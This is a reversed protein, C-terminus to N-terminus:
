KSLYERLANLSNRTDEEAAVFLEHLKEKDQTTVKVTPPISPYIVFVRGEEHLKDMLDMQENYLKYDNLLSNLFEKNKRYQRRYLAKIAKSPSKKRYGKARTSIVVIHKAGEELPRLFPIAEFIGGDVYGKGDITIPKSFPPLSASSALGQYFNKDNKSFYAACNDTVCASVAYFDDESAFFEEEKFPLKEKPLKKLLYDFDFISGKTFYNQVKIFGKASALELILKELRDIDKTLYEIGLLAGASTGYVENFHINNELLIKLAGAAYTGRAGGGQVVLTDKNVMNGTELLM